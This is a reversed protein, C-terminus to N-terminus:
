SSWSASPRCPRGRPDGRGPRIDALRRPQGQGLVPPSQRGPALVTEPLSAVPTVVGDALSPKLRVAPIDDRTRVALNQAAISSRTRRRGTRSRPAPPSAMLHRRRVLVALITRGAIHRNRFTMVDEEPSRGADDSRTTATAWTSGSCPGTAPTSRATRSRRTRRSSSPRARSRGRVAPQRFPAPEDGPAPVLDGRLGPRPCAAPRHRVQRDLRRRLGDPNAFKPPTDWTFGRGIHAWHMGSAPSRCATIASPCRRREPAFGAPIEEVVM